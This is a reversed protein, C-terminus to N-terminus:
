PYLYILLVHMDVHRVQLTFSGADFGRSCTSWCLPDVLLWQEAPLEAKTTTTAEGRARKKAARKDLLKNELLLKKKKELHHSALGRVRWCVSRTGPWSMELGLAFSFNFFAQLELTM